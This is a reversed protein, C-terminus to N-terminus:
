RPFDVSPRSTRRGDALEAQATNASLMATRRRKCRSVRTQADGFLATEELQVRKAARNAAGLRRSATSCAPPHMGYRPTSLTKHWGNLEAHLNGPSDSSLQRCADLPIQRVRLPLFTRRCRTRRGSRSRTGHLWQWTGATRAAADTRCRDGDRHRLSAARTRRGAPVPQSGAHTSVARGQLPLESFQSKMAADIRAARVGDEDFRRRCRCESEPRQSPSDVACGTSHHPVSVGCTQIVAL